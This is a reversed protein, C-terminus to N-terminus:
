VTGIPLNTSDDNSQLIMKGGSEIRSTCTVTLNDTPINKTKCGKSNQVTVSGAIALVPGRKGCSDCKFWPRRMAGDRVLCNYFTVGGITGYEAQHLLLPVNQGGWRVMPATAVGCWSCNAFTVPMSLAAKDEFELGPQVTDNVFVNSFNLWGQSGNSFSGACPM